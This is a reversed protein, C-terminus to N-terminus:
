PHNSQDTASAQGLSSDTAPEGWFYGVLLSAFCGHVSLFAVLAQEIGIGYDFLFSSWISWVFFWESFGFFGFKESWCRLYFWGFMVFGNLALWGYGGWVLSDVISTSIYWVASRRRGSWRQSTGQCPGAWSLSRPSPVWPTRWNRTTYGLQELVLHLVLISWNYKPSLKLM